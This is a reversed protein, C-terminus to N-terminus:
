ESATIKSVVRKKSTGHAAFLIVRRSERLKADNMCLKCSLCNAARGTQQPCPIGVTDENLPYATDQKFEPVVMAAAYGDEFAQEVQEMDECSRLVSIDKWSTRKVNHAHTYTWAPQNFKRKHESAAMSVIDAAEDSTCDGVVHLRLPFRGTLKRIEDAEAQAIEVPDSITSRNLRHTQIGVHGSEAYCGSNRFPCTTPCSSQSVYTASVEGIKMNRSHEVATAAKM